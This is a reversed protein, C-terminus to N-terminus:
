SDAEVALDILMGVVLDKTLPSASTLRVRHKDAIKNAQEVLTTFEIHGASHARLLDVTDAKLALYDTQDIRDREMIWWSVWETKLRCLDPILDGPIENKRCLRHLRSLAVVSERGGVRLQNYGETSLSLLRLVNGVVLGKQARLEESTQPLTSLVLHSRQRIAAVLDAGIKKAESLLLDVETAELIRSAILVRCGALDRLTGIGEQVNLVRLFRFVAERTAGPFVTELAQQLDSFAQAVDAPLESPDQVAKTALLLQSLQGDVGADSVFVFGGCLPGFKRTHDWM